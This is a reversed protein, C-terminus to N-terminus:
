DSVRQRIQIRVERVQEKVQEMGELDMRAARRAEEMPLGRELHRDVLMSQFAELERTLDEEVQRRRFLVQLFTRARSWWLM